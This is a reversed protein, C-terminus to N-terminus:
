VRCSFMRALRSPRRQGCSMAEQFSHARFRCVFNLDLTGSTSRATWYNGTLGRPNRPPGEITLRTAGYHMPSRTQQHQIEPENLYVTALLFREGPEESISAAVTTSSSEQTYQRVNLGDVSQTVVMAVNIPGCPEVEGDHIYNSKLEGVWTGTLRPTKTLLHVGPWYWAWHKFVFGTSTLVGVVVSFPVLFSWALQVGQVFLYIAWTAAVLAVIITAYARSM